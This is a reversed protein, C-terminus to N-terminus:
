RSRKLHIELRIVLFLEPLELHVVVLFAVRALVSQVADVVAGVVELQGGDLVLVDQRMRGLLRLAPTTGWHLPRQVLLSGEQFFALHGALGDDLASEDFDSLVFLLVGAALDGEADLDFDQFLLLVFQESLAFIALLAEFVHVLEDAFFFFDESVKLFEILDEDKLVLVEFKFLLEAVGIVALVMLAMLDLLALVVLM